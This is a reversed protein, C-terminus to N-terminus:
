RGGSDSPRDTGLISQVETEKPKSFFNKVVYAIGALVVTKISPDLVLSPVIVTQLYDLAFAILAVIFAKGLDLWNLSLFKSEKM